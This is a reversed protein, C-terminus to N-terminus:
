QNRWLVTAVRTMDWVDVVDVAEERKWAIKLAAKFVYSLWVM